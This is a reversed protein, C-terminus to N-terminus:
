VHGIQREGTVSRCLIKSLQDKLGSLSKNHFRAARRSSQRSLYVSEGLRLWRPGYLLDRESLKMFSFSFSVRWTKEAYGRQWATTVYRGRKIENLTDRNAKTGPASAQGPFM